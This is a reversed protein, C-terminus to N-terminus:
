GRADLDDRTWEALRTGLAFVGEPSACRGLDGQACLAGGWVDGGPYAAGRPGKCAREWELESCIRRGRAGCAREAAGRTLGSAMPQAPDNPFPLADITFAPLALPPLDVEVSPDRGPDGPTSGIAFSGAPISVFAGAAPLPRAGPITSPGTDTPPARLPIPEQPPDAHPRHPASGVGADSSASRSSRCGADALLTLV